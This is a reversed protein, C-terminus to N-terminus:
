SRCVVFREDAFVIVCAIIVFRLLTRLELLVFCRHVSCDFATSGGARAFLLCMGADLANFARERFDEARLRHFKFSGPPDVQHVIGREAALLRSQERSSQGIM